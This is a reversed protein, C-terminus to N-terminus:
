SCVGRVCTLLEDLTGTFDKALACLTSAHHPSLTPLEATLARDLLERLTDWACALSPLPIHAGAAAGHAALAALIQPPAHTQLDPHREVIDQLLEVTETRLQPGTGPHTALTFNWTMFAAPSVDDPEECLVHVLEDIEDLEDASTQLRNMIRVTLATLDHPHGTTRLFAVLADHGAGSIAHVLAWEHAEALMGGRRTLTTMARLVLEPEDMLLSRRALVAKALALSDPEATLADRAIEAPRPYKALASRYARVPHDQSHVWDLVAGPTTGPHEWWDISALPPPTPDAAADLARTLSTDNGAAALERALELARGTEMQRVDWVLKTLAARLSKARFRRGLLTRAAAVRLDTDAANDLVWTAVRQSAPHLAVIEAVVRDREPGAYSHLVGAAPVAGARAQEIALDPDADDRGLWATDKTREGLRYAIDFPLLPSMLVERPARARGALLANAAHERLTAPAATCTIISTLLM